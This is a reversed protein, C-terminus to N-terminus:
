AAFESTPTNNSTSNSTSASSHSKGAPMTLATKIHDNHSELSTYSYYRVFDGITTLYINSNEFGWGQETQEILCHSIRDGYLVSLVLKDTQTASPRILFVGDIPPRYIGMKRDLELMKERAGLLSQAAEEKSSSFVLYQAPVWRLPLDALLQSVQMPENVIMEMTGEVTTQIQAGTVGKQVLEAYAKNRLEHYKVLRQKATNMDQRMEDLVQGIKTKQLLSANLENRIRKMSSDLVKANGDMAVEFQEDCEERTKRDMKMKIDGEIEWLEELKELKMEYDRCSNALTNYINEAREVESHSVDFLRASRDCSMQIIRLNELGLREIWDEENRSLYLNKETSIPSNLIQASSSPISNLNNLIPGKKALNRGNQSNRRSCVPYLLRTDLNENYVQLSIEKHFDILSVVTDHTLNDPSFGCKSGRVVIKILKVQGQYKVSLTYDGQTSANRVIFAGDPQDALVRSITMKDVEGWYWSQELLGVLSM